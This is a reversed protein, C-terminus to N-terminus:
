DAPVFAHPVFQSTNTTVPGVSERIGLGCARDAVVWSGLVATRTVGSADRTTLMPALGQHVVPGAYDGATRTLVAGDRVLTVNAGERSLFPKVAYSSLDRPGDLYAPLLNEHEPFLEWLVALIAKNSLVMKWAPEVFVTGEEISRALFPAARARDEDILWEWPYLKFLREIPSVGDGVAHFLLPSEPHTVTEEFFVAETLLGAQMAADRLCGVTMGDELSDVHAFYVPLDSGHRAAFREWALRLQEFVSNFQDLRPEMDALWHWQVVAAEVLSTPTDANYELLKPAGGPSWALDMRGYVSLDGRRWSREVPDHYAAPIGLDRLRGRSVVHDVAELCMVHLADTAQEIADIEAATFLYYASENWYSGGGGVENYALGQERVIQEWGMRPRSPVRRSALKDM